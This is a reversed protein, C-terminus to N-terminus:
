TPAAGLLGAKLKGDVPHEGLFVLLVADYFDIGAIAAGVRRGNVAVHLGTAPEFDLDVVDAKRVKDIGALLADFAALREALQAQDAPPLNRAIGTHVAKALEATPVGVLMRLQLRRAGRSALVADATAAPSRLYLGAAYATIFRNARLGLGNLQLEDGGVRVTPAFRVGGVQLNAPAAVAISGALLPLAFLFRRRLLM